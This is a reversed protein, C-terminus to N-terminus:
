LFRMEESISELHDDLFDMINVVRDPMINMKKLERYGYPEDFENEFWKKIKSDNKKLFAVPDFLLDKLNLKYLQGKMKLEEYEEPYGHEYVVYQMHKLNDWKRMHTPIEQYCRVIHLFQNKRIVSRFPTVVYKGKKIKETSPGRGKHIKREDYLQSVIFELLPELSYCEINDGFQLRIISKNEKMSDLTIPDDEVCDVNWPSFCKKPM